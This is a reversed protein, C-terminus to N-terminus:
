RQQTGKRVAFLAVGAAVLLIVAIVYPAISAGTHAVVNDASQDGTGTAPTAAAVVPSTITTGKDGTVTATLKGEEAAKRGAETLTIVINAAGNEDAKFPGWTKMAIQQVNSVYAEDFSVTFSENPQFTGASYSATAVNGNVTITAGYDVAFATSSAFGLGLVTAIAALLAMIKKKM